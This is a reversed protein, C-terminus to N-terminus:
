GVKQWTTQEGGMTMGSMAQPGVQGFQVIVGYPLVQWGVSQQGQMILQNGPSAQWQGEVVMTGLPTLSQGHFLGNPMLQLAMQTTMGWPNTIQVQWTGVLQPGLGVPAQPAPGSPPRTPVAPGPPALPPAHFSGSPRVNTIGWMLQAIPEPDNVRFDVWTMEQLFLPLDPQQPADPLIVPIVPREQTRFRILLARLEADQWPGIGEAGVFVAASKVSEIQQELLAQWSLGPRCEWEDLWPLVGRQKLQEGIQKVQPKDTHNHCLFVDFSSDAIKSQVTSAATPRPM